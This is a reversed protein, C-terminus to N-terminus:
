GLFWILRFLRFMIDGVVYMGCLVSLLLTGKYPLRYFLYALLVGVSCLKADLPFTQWILLAGKQPPSKAESTSRGPEYM